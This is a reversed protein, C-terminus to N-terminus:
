NTTTTSIYKIRYRPESPIKFLSKVKLCHFILFVFYVKFPPPAFTPTVRPGYFFIQGMSEGPHIVSISLKKPPTSSMAHECRPYGPHVQNM